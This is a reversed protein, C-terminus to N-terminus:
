YNITINEYVKTKATIHKADVNIVFMHPEYYHYRKYKENEIIDSQIVEIDVADIFCIIIDAFMKLMEEHTMERLRGEYLVNKEVDSSTYIGKSKEDIFMIEENFSFISTQVGYFNIFLNEEKGDFVITEIKLDSNDGIEEGEESLLRIDLNNCQNKINGILYKKLEENTFKMCSENYKESM